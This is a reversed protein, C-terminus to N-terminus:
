RLIGRWGCKCVATFDTRRKLRFTDGSGRMGRDEPRQVYKCGIRGCDKCKMLNPNM